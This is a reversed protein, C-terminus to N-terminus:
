MQWALQCVSSQQYSRRCDALQEFIDKGEFSVPRAGCSVLTKCGDHDPHNRIVAYVENWQHSLCDAAGHWSGGKMTRAAVVFPPSGMAYILRNRFLAKSASFSEDPLTDAAILLEGDRVAKTKKPDALVDSFRTAPFILVKGNHKAASDQSFRDIGRANGSVLVLGNLASYAGIGKAIEATEPSVDRSGAVSIHPYACFLSLNGSAFLWLPEAEKLRSLSSPWDRDDPLLLRYGKADYKSILREAELRNNLLQRFRSYQEESFADKAYRLLEESSVSNMRQILWRIFRHTFPRALALSSGSDIHCTLCLLTSADIHIDM